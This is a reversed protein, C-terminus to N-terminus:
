RLTSLEVLNILRWANETREITLEYTAPGGELRKVSASKSTKYRTPGAVTTVRFARQRGSANVRKISVIQPESTKAYGGNAYFGSIRAALAECPTCGEAYVLYEDTDGSTIM